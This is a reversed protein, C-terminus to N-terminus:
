FDTGEKAASVVRMVGIAEDLSIPFTTGERIAGYLHDWIVHNSGAKVSMTESAKMLCGAVAVEDKRNM